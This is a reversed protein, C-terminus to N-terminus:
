LHLHRFTHAQQALTGDENEKVGVPKVVECM